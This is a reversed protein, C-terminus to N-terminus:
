HHGLCCSSKQKALQWDQHYHDFKQQKWKLVQLSRIEGLGPSLSWEEAVEVGEVHRARRRHLSVFVRCTHELTKCCALLCPDHSDCQLWEFM